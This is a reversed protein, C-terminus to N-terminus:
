DEKNSLFQVDILHFISNLLGKVEEIDYVKDELNFSVIKGANKLKVSYKIANERHKYFDYREIDKVLEQVNYLACLCDQKSTQSWLNFRGKETKFFYLRDVQNKIQHLIDSM